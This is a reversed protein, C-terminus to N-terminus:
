NKVKKIDEAQTLGSPEDEPLRSYICNHYPIFYVSLILLGTPQLSHEISSVIPSSISVMYKIGYWLQTNLRRGSSSGEPKFCTSSM